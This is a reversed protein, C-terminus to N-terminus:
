VRSHTPAKGGQNQNEKKSYQKKKQTKKEFDFSLEFSVFTFFLSFVWCSFNNTKTIVLQIIRNAKEEASDYLFIDIM